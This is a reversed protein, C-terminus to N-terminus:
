RRCLYVWTSAHTYCLSLCSVPVQHVWTQLHPVSLLAVWIFWILVVPSSQCPTGLDALWILWPSVQVDMTHARLELEGRGVGSVHGLKWPVM